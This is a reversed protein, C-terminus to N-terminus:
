PNTNGPDARYGFKKVRIRGTRIRRTGPGGPVRFVVVRIRGTGPNKTGSGDSSEYEEIKTTTLSFIFCPNSCNSEKRYLDTFLNRAQSGKDEQKCIHSKDPGYPSTCGVKDILEKEIWKATCLDKQYEKENKCPVGEYDVDLM